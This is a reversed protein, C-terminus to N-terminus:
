YRGHSCGEIEAVIVVGRRRRDFFRGIAGFIRIDGDLLGVRRLRRLNLPFGPRRLLLSHTKKFSSSRALHAVVTFFRPLIGSREGPAKEQRSGFNRELKKPCGCSFPPTAMRERFADQSSREGRNHPFRECGRAEARSRRWNM